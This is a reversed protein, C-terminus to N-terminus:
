EDDEDDDGGGSGYPLPIKPEVSRRNEAEELVANGVIKYAESLREFCSKLHVQQASNMESTAPSMHKFCTRFMANLANASLEQIFQDDM